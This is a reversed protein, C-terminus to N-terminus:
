RLAQPQIRRMAMAQRVPSGMELRQSDSSWMNSGSSPTSFNFRASSTMTWPSSPTSFS